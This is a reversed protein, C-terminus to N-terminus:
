FGINSNEQLYSNTFMSTYFDNFEEQIFEPLEVESPIKVTRYNTLQVQGQPSLLYVILEQSEQANVMGLRIPLMFQPSEYAIMLPRLSQFGTAAYEALNVRAVFFKLNQRIYPHLIESAGAPIQYGNQKLWTELGGSDEASLILIDYEGVTFSREVTVGLSNRGTSEEAASPPAADLEMERSYVRTDCPNNDFYEVLRPASFADLRQLIVDNGVRVQEPELIVPVPVVLAFDQVEGQYDNAMTLITREGDRAIIVQSAQNYLQTDAKAVYFGCFALVPQTCCVLSLTLSILLQLFRM